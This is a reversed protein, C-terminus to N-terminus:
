VIYSYFEPMFAMAFGGITTLFMAWKLMILRGYIDALYCLLNGIFFGSFVMGGMFGIQWSALDWDDKLVHPVISAITLSSGFSFGALVIVLFVKM